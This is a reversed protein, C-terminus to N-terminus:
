AVAGKVLYGAEGCIIIDDFKDNYRRAEKKTKDIGAIDDDVFPYGQERFRYGFSMEEKSPQPNPNVYALIIDKSFIFDFENTSENLTLSSAIVIKEISFKDQLHQLTAAQSQGTLTSAIKLQPHWKIVQFVDEPLIMVNPRNGIKKSIAFCSADIVQQPTSNTFDNFQDTGSLTIKNGTPYNNINTLREANDIEIDMLVAEKAAVPLRSIKDQLENTPTHEKDVEKVCDRPQLKYNDYFIKSSDSINSNALEARKTHQRKFMEKGFRKCEFPSGQVTIEPFIATSVYGKPQFGLVVRTLTLYKSM